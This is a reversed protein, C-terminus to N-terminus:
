TAAAVVDRMLSAACARHWAVKGDTSEDHVRARDIFFNQQRGLREIDFDPTLADTM